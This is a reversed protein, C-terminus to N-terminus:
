INNHISMMFIRTFTKGTIRLDAAPREVVNFASGYPPMIVDSGPVSSTMSCPARPGIDPEDAATVPAEADDVHRGHHRRRYGAHSRSLIALPM